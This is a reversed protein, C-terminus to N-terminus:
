SVGEPQMLDEVTFVAMPGAGTGYEYPGSVVTPIRAFNDPAPPTSTFWELGRSGWPNEALTIPADLVTSKLFNYVFVLM